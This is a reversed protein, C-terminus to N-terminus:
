YFPRTPNLRNFAAHRDTTSLASYWVEIYSLWQYRSNTRIISM